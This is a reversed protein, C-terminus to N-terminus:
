GGEDANVVHVQGRSLFAIRRGDPSWAPSGDRGPSHTLRRLGSGDANVVYIEANGDRTSRFAISRGDPSWAPEADYALSRSLNRQGSGDANVVYVGFAEEPSSSVFAITQGDPSWAPSGAGSYTLRRQDSGNVNIVYLEWGGNPKGLFAIRQGDPSWAPSPPRSLGSPTGRLRFLPGMGRTLRRQGSGDANMVYVDSNHERTGIFAIKRGDPSWVPNEDLLSNRTLNRQGSGDANMVYIEADRDRDSEFAIKRGNPSWIPAFDAAPNRTLNRTGSGDANVLYIERDGDRRSAFAIKRGDPSWALVHVAPPPAPASGRILDLLRGGIGLAPTVLLAGVLIAAAVVVLRLRRRGQRAGSRSLVDDWDAVVVPVPFVREFSEAVALEVDTM